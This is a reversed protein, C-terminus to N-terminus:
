KARYINKIIITVLSTTIKVKMFRKLRGVRKSKLTNACQPYLTFLFFQSHLVYKLRPFSLDLKNFGWQGKNITIKGNETDGSAAMSCRNFVNSFCCHNIVLIVCGLFFYENIKRISKCNHYFICLTNPIQPCLFRNSRNTKTALLHEMYLFVSIAPM